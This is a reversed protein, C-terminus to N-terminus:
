CDIAEMLLAVGDPILNCANFGVLSNFLNLEGILNGIVLTGLCAVKPVDPLMSYDPFRILSNHVRM